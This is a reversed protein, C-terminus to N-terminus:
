DDVCRSVHFCTPQTEVVAADIRREGVEVCTV